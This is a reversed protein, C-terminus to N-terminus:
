KNVEITDVSTIQLEDDVREVEVVIAHTATEPTVRKKILGDVIHHNSLHKVGQVCYETWGLESIHLNM